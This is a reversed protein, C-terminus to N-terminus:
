RKALERLLDTRTVLGVLKADDLVLLCEIGREVMIEAADHISADSAITTAPKMIEKVAVTGLVKRLTKKPQRVLAAMSAHLLDDQDVIGILKEGDMVPFHRVHTLNLMDDALRLTDDLRLTVLYTTMMERVAKDPSRTATATNM